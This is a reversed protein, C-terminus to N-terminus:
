RNEERGKVEIFQHFRRRWYFEVCGVAGARNKLVRARARGEGGVPEDAELGILLDADHEITASGFMDGMALPRGESARSAQVLEVVAVGRKMALQKLGRTLAALEENRQARTKQPSLLGLHDVVVAEPKFRLINAELQELGACDRDDIILRYKEELLRAAQEVRQRQAPTLARDRFLASDLGLARAFICTYLQERPMELSQYLVRRGKSMQTAIQLAFTTKGGGPRASIATVGRRPLGGTLADLGGFGTVLAPRRSDLWGLFDGMGEKWGKATAGEEAEELAQQSQWLQGLGRTLGSADMGSIRLGDLGALITRERWGDRLCAIYSEFGAMSPATEACELVPGKYGEGLTEILTTADPRRGKQRLARCCAFMQGLTESEFMEPTVRSYVGACGEPDMMMCGLVSKEAWIM